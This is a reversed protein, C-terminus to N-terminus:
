FPYYVGARTNLATKVINVSHSMPPIYRRLNKLSLNSGDQSYSRRDHSLPQIKQCYRFLIAFYNKVFTM